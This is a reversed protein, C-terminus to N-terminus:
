RGESACDTVGLTIGSFRGGRVEVRFHPAIHLDCPESIEVRKSEARIPKMLWDRLWLRPNWKGKM